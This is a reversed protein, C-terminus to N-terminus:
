AGSFLVYRLKNLKIILFSVPKHLIESPWLNGRFTMRARFNSTKKNQIFSSYDQADLLFDLVGTKRPMIVPDHWTV